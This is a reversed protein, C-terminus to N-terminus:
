LLFRDERFEERLKTQAKHLKLHTCVLLAFPTPPTFTHSRKFTVNAACPPPCEADHVPQKAERSLVEKICTTPPQKPGLIPRSLKSYILAQKGQRSDFGSVETGVWLRTVTDVSDVRSSKHAMTLTGFCSRHWIAIHRTECFHTLM